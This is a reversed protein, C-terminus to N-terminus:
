MNEFSSFVFLACVIAPSIEINVLKLLKIIIVVSTVCRLPLPAPGPKSTPPQLGLPPENQFYGGCVLERSDMLGM